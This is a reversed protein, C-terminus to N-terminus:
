FSRHRRSHGRALFLLSAVIFLLSLNRVTATRRRVRPAHQMIPLEALSAASPAARWSGWGSGWGPPDSAPFSELSAQDVVDWDKAWDRQM